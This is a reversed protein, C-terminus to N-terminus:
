KRSCPGLFLSINSKTSSQRNAQYNQETRDLLTQLQHLDRSSKEVTLKLDMEHQQAEILRQKSEFFENKLSQNENLLQQYQKTVNNVQSKLSEIEKEMLNQEKESDDLRKKM